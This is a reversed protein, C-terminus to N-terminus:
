CSSCLRGAVEKSLISAARYLRSERDRFGQPLGGMLGHHVMLNVRPNPLSSLALRLFQPLLRVYGRSQRFETAIEIANWGNTSFENQVLGFSLKKYVFTSHYAQLYYTPLLLISELYLKLEYFNRPRMGPDEAVTLIHEAASVTRQVRESLDDRLLFQQAPPDNTLAVCYPFTEVPLYHQPYFDLDMETVGYIGHHQFPDFSLVSRQWNAVHGRLSSLRYPDVVCDRTVVVIMDVDSYNEIYDHTALSGHLFLGSIDAPFVAAADRAIKGVVEVALSDGEESAWSDYGSDIAVSQPPRSRQRNNATIKGDLMQYSAALLQELEENRPGVADLYRKTARQAASVTEGSCGDSSLLDALHQVILRVSDSYKSRYPYALFRFRTMGYGNLYLGLLTHLTNQVEVENPRKETQLGRLDSAQDRM